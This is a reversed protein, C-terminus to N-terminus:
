SGTEVSVWELRTLRATYEWNSNADIDIKPEPPLANPLAPVQPLSSQVVIGSSEVSERSQLLGVVSASRILSTVAFFLFISVWMISRRGSGKRRLEAGVKESEERRDEVGCSSRDDDIEGEEGVDDESSGEEAEERSSLLRLEEVSFEPVEVTVEDEVADKHLDEEIEEGSSISGLDEESFELIEVPEEDESVPPSSVEEALGSEWRRVPSKRVPERVNRGKSSALGLRLWNRDKRSTM